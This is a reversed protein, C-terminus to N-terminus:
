MTRTQRQGKRGGEIAPCPPTPIPITLDLDITFKCSDQTGDECNGPVTEKTVTIAGTPGSACKDYGVTIDVSGGDITPCPPTPIPIDLNLDILFRCPDTDTKTVTLGGEPDNNGCGTGYTVKISTHTDFEPCPFCPEQPVPPVPCDFIPPPPQPISCDSVFLFDVSPVEPVNCKSPDFLPQTM